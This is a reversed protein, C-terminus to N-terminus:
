NQFCKILDHFVEPPTHYQFTPFREDNRSITERARVLLLQAPRIDLDSGVTVRESLTPIVAEYRLERLTICHLTPATNKFTKNSNRHKMM